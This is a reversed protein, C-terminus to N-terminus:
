AATLSNGPDALDFREMIQRFYRANASEMFPVPKLSEDVSEGARREEVYYVDFGLRRFGLLWQLFAWTNGGYGLPHGAISGSFLIRNAM